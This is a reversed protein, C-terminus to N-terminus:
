GHLHPDWHYHCPCCCGCCPLHGRASGAGHGAAVPNEPDTVMAEEGLLHLWLPQPSLAPSLWPMQLPCASVLVAQNWALLCGQAWRLAPLWTGGDQAGAAEWLTDVTLGLGAVGLLM